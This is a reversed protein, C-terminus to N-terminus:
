CRERGDQRWQRPIDRWADARLDNGAPPNGLPSAADATTIGYTERYAAALGVVQDWQRALAADDPRARLHALWAPRERVAQDRL